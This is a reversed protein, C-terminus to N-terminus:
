KRRFEWPPVPEADAVDGVKGEITAVISDTLSVTPSRRHRIESLYAALTTISLWLGKGFNPNVILGGSLPCLTIPKV